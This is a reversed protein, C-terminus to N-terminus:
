RRLVGAVLVDGGDGPAPELGVTACLLRYVHVGDVVPLRAGRRYRPGWAIFVAGMEPLANDYGHTAAEPRYNAREILARPM